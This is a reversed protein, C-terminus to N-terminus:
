ILGAKKACAQIYKYLMAYDHPELIAKGPENLDARNVASWVNAVNAAANKSVGNGTRRMMAKLSEM